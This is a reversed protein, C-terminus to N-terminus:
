FVRPAIPHQYLMKGNAAYFSFMLQDSTMKVHAFGGLINPDGWFFRLSGAPVASKHETSPDIFNAAGSVFYEVTADNVTYELHQLNHDHGCFYASVNYKHLLPLLRHLLCHTPGHSSISFVPYHGTVILYDAKSKRLQDELWSLQKEAVMSNEPGEPQVGHDNDDSNGCLLITDLMLVDMTKSGSPLSFSLPYFYSPFNWRKEIKSYAIEASVNGNHDHNGAVFYWDIGLSADTFVHDYTEGFRPDDVDKVGDYYFNDGLALVFQINNDTAFKGMQRAVAKEIETTFPSQPLGGWDGIVLYNLSDDASTVVKASLQDIVSLTTLALLIWWLSTM